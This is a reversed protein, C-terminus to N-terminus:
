YKDLKNPNQKGHFIDLIIVENEIVEYIIKYNWKTIHRYQIQNIIPDIPFLVHENSLSEGLEYLTEFVYLANNPNDKFIYDYICSLSNKAQLSWKVIM